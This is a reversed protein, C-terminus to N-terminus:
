QKVVIKFTMLSFSTCTVSPRGSKSTIHTKKVYINQLKKIADDRYGVEWRQEETWTSRENDKLRLDPFPSDDPSSIFPRHRSPVQFGRLLTVQASAQSTRKVNFTLQQVKDSNNKYTQTNLLQMSPRPASFADHIQLSHQFANHPWHIQIDVDKLNIRPADTKVKDKAWAEVIDDAHLVADGSESFYFM